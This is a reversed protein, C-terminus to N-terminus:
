LVPKDLTDISIARSIKFFCDQQWESLFFGVCVNILFLGPFVLGGGKLKTIKIWYRYNEQLVFKKFSTLGPLPFTGYSYGFYFTSVSAIILPALFGSVGAITASRMSLCASCEQGDGNVLPKKVLDAHLMPGILTVYFATFYSSIRGHRKLNLYFRYHNVIYSSTLGSTALLIGSSYRFPITQSKPHWKALLENFRPYNDLHRYEISQVLQKTSM